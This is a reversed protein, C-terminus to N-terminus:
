DSQSLLQARAKQKLAAWRQRTEDQPLGLWAILDNEHTFFGFPSISEMSLLHITDGLLKLATSATYIASKGLERGADKSEKNKYIILQLDSVSTEIESDFVDIIINMKAKLRPDLAVQDGAEFFNRTTITGTCVYIILNLEPHIEYIVPM